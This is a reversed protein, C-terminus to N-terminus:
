YMIMVKLSKCHCQQTILESYISDTWQMRCEIILLGGRKLNIIIEVRLFLLLMSLARTHQTHDLTSSLEMGLIILLCM